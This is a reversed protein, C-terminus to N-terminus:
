CNFSMDWHPSAGYPDGWFLWFPQTSQSRVTIVWPQPVMGGILIWGFSLFRTEILYPLTVGWCGVSVLFFVKEIVRKPVPCVEVVVVEGVIGVGVGGCSDIRVSPSGGRRRKTQKDREREREEERRSKIRVFCRNSTICVEEVKVEVERVTWVVNWNQQYKIRRRYVYLGCVVRM